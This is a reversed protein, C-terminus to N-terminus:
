KAAYRSTSGFGAFWSPRVGAAGAIPASMVCCWGDVWAAAPGAAAADSGNPRLNVRHKLCHWHTVNLRQM